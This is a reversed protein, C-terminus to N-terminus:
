NPRWGTDDPRYLAKIHGWSTCEVPSDAYCEYEGVPAGKGVGAHTGLCYFDVEGPEGCDVVWRPYLPHDALVVDGPVGLYRVTVRLFYVVQSEVCWVPDGVAITTGEDLAGVEVGYPLLNEHEVLELSGPTLDLKFSVNALHVDPHILSTARFLGIYADVLEGSEPYIENVWETPCMDQWSDKTGDFDIFIGCSPNQGAAARGAFLSLLVVAVM